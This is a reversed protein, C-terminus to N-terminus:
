KNSSLRDLVLRGGRNIITFGSSIAGTEKGILSKLEKFVSDSMRINLSKTAKSSM